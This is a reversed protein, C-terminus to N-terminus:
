VKTEDPYNWGGSGPLIVLVVVTVLGERRPGGGSDYIHSIEGLASFSGILNSNKQKM